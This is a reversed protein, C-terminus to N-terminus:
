GRTMESSQARQIRTHVYASDSGFWGKLTPWRFTFGSDSFGQGHITTDHYRSRHILSDHTRSARARCAVPPPARKQARQCTYIDRNLFFNVLISTKPIPLCPPIRGL